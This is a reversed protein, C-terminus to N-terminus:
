PQPKGGREAIVATMEPLPDRRDQYIATVQGGRIELASARGNTVYAPQMGTDIQAVKGGFRMRIRGSGSVTHAVVIARARQNSLVADVDAAFSEPAEALGRYWTPGDERAALSALPDRRAQDLDGTLERRVAANIADCPMESVSPSIGGHVFLVGDIKVVTDLTRLWKGYAGKLGFAIQMEVSGLPTADLLQPQGSLARRRIEESDSTAFARYEGPDTYRFDGLMRAVEHNGILAHVGGGASAAERELRRLLDLAKRSDPGRDVVDGLQVFHTRGGSWRQREDIVGAARLIEVFRDYAGHVDGVAVIRDIGDLACATTGTHLPAGTPWTLALAAATAWAILTGRSLDGITKSDGPGLV